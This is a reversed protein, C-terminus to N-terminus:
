HCCITPSSRPESVKIRGNRSSRASGFASRHNVKETTTQMLEYEDRKQFVQNSLFTMMTETFQQIPIRLAGTPGLHCAVKFGFQQSVLCLGKEADLHLIARCHLLFPLSLLFPADASHDEEFLAPRLICGRPGLSCPICALRNTCSVKHVSRFQHTEKCFSVPLESPQTKMLQELTNLGIAMRQCGTDITACGFDADLMSNLHFCQFAAPRVTYARHISAVDFCDEVPGNSDAAHDTELYFFESEAMNMGDQMLFNVEKSRQKFNESKPKPCERAWHGVTGCNNCKTRKKLEQISVEYTGPKLLGDRGAGYGRALDRNKKAKLAGAYSRSRHKSDKLMTMLIDKTEMESLTVMEDTSENPEELDAMTTLLLDTMDNEAAEDEDQLNVM